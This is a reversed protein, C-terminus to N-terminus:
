QLCGTPCKTLRGKIQCNARCKENNNNNKEWSTISFHSRRQAPLPRNVVELIRRKTEKESQIDM